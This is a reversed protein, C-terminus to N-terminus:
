IFIVEKELLVKTQDFVKKQVELILEKIDNSTASDNNIIFNCHLSSIKAGGVTMNECGAQQILKWANYGLPNKFVSGFTKIRPQKENRYNKMEQITDKVYNSEKTSFCGRLFIMGRPMNSSRYEYKIENRNLRHIIGDQDIIEAWVLFDAVCSGYAGANMYLAGGITGPITYLFELNSLNHKACYRVAITNPTGADIIVMNKNTTIINPMSTLKIIISDSGSDSIIVNSGFGLPIYPTKQSLFCQLEQQNKPEFVKVRGGTRIWTLNSALEDRISLQM